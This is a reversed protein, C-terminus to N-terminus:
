IFLYKLKTKKFIVEGIFSIFYATLYIIFCGNITKNQVISIKIKLYDRILEHLCYIGQTYSTIKTIM